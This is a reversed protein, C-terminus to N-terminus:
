STNLSLTERPVEPLGIGCDYDFWIYLCYLTKLDQSSVSGKPLQRGPIVLLLSELHSGENSFALPRTRMSLSMAPPPLASPAKNPSVVPEM